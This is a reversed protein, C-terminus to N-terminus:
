LLPSKKTKPTAGKKKKPKKSRRAAAVSKEVWQLLSEPDEFVDDPLQCYSMEIPKGHREYIFPPMGAESYDGRNIADVKFYLIEYAILAFMIGETYIGYGGFMNRVTVPAVQNLQHTVKDKFALAEPTAM